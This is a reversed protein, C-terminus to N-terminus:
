CPRVWALPAFPSSEDRVLSVWLEKEASGASELEERQKEVLEDQWEFDRVTYKNERCKQLFEERHRKFLTVNFLAYEEDKALQRSSRPVVFPALREYTSLWQKASNKPVAVLLTELFESTPDAFDSRHVM